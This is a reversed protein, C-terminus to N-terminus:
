FTISVTIIATYGVLKSNQWSGADGCTQIHSAHTGALDCAFNQQFTRTPNKEIVHIKGM